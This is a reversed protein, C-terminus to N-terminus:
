KGDYKSRIDLGDFCKNWTESEKELLSLMFLKDDETNEGLIEELIRM